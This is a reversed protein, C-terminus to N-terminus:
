DWAVEVEVGKTDGKKLTGTKYQPNKRGTLEVIYDFHGRMEMLFAEIGEEKPDIFVYIKIKKEDIKEYDMVIFNFLQHSVQVFTRIAEEPDSFKLFRTYVNKFMQEVQMRGFMRVLDMNGGAILHFIAVGCRRWTDFPYWVSPLVTGNIIKWDEPNLYKNWDKEQNARIMRAYDLMLTGKVKREDM